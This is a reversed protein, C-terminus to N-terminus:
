VSLDLIRRSGVAPFRATRTGRRSDPWLPCGSGARRCRRRYHGSQRNAYDRRTWGLRARFGPTPLPDVIELHNQLLIGLRSHPPPGLSHRNDEGWEGVYISTRSIGSGRLGLFLSPRTRPSAVRHWRRRLLHCLWRSGFGPTGDSRAAIRAGTCGYLDCSPWNVTASLAQRQERCLM